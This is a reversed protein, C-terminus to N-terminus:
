CYATTFKVTLLIGIVPLSTTVQVSKQMHSRSTTIIKRGEPVPVRKFGFAGLGVVGWLMRGTEKGPM